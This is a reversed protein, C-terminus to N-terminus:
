GVGPRSPSASSAVGTRLVIGSPRGGVFDFNSLLSNLECGRLWELAFHAAARFPPRVCVCAREALPLDYVPGLRVPRSGDMMFPEWGNRSGRRVLTIARGTRADAEISNCFGERPRFGEAYAVRMFGVYDRDYESWEAQPKLLPWPWFRQQEPEFGAQTAHDPCV